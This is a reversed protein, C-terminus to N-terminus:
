KCMFRDFHVKARVEQPTSSSISLGGLIKLDSQAFRLTEVAGYAVDSLADACSTPLGV